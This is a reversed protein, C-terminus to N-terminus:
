VTNITKRKVYVLGVLQKQTLDKKARQVKLTNKLVPKNMKSSEPNFFLYGIVPTLAATFITTQIAFEVSLQHFLSTFYLL